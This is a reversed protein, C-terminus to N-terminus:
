KNDKKISALIHNRSGVITGSEKNELVNSNNSANMPQPKNLEKTMDFEVKEKKMQLEMLKIDSDLVKAHADYAIKLIATASSIMEAMFKPEMNETGREFVDEFADEARKALRDLFSKREKVEQVDKLQVRMAKLDALTKQIRELDMQNTDTSDDEEM